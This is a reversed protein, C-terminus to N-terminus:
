LVTRSIHTRVTSISTDTFQKRGREHIRYRRWSVSSFVLDALEPIGIGAASAVQVPFFIEIGVRPRSIRQLREDEVKRLELTGTPQLHELDAHAHSRVVEFPQLGSRQRRSHVQRRGRNLPSPLTTM